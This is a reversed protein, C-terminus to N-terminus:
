SDETAEPRGECAYTTCGGIYEWCESHHATECLSCTVVVGELVEGCVGCHSAEAGETAVIQMEDEGAPAVDGELQLPTGGGAIMLPFDEPLPRFEIPLDHETHVVGECAILIEATMKVVQTGPPLAFARMPVFLWLDRFAALGFTIPDTLHRARVEGHDGRYNRLNARVYHQDPGRFRVVVETRKGKFGHALFSVHVVLGRRGRLRTIDFWAKRHKLPLNSSFARTAARNYVGHWLSWALPVSALSLCGALIAFIWFADWGGGTWLTLLIAGLAPGGGVLTCLPGLVEKQKYVPLQVEPLVVAPLDEALPAMCAPCSAGPGSPGSTGCASCAIQWGEGPNGQPQFYSRRQLDAM